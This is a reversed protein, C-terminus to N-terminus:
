EPAAEIGLHKEIVELRQLVRELLEIKKPDECHPQATTADFQQAQRVLARFAELAQREAETTVNPVIPIAPQWWPGTVAPWTKQGYDMVASVSCM